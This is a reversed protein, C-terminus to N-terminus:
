PGAAVLRRPEATVDGIGVRDPKDGGDNFGESASGALGVDPLVSTIQQAEVTLDRGIDDSGQGVVQLPRAPSCHQHNIVKMQRLRATGFGQRQQQVVPGSRQLQHHGAM